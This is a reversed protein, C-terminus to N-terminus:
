VEVLKSNGSPQYDIKLLDIYKQTTAKNQHGVAESVVDIPVGQTLQVAIFTNRLDNVCANEIGAKKMAKDITARINRIILAKGARTCFLPLEPRADDYSNLYDMIVERVRQNLNVKRGPTNSFARIDLQGGHLDLEIDQIQLRSLEGIRVGTQMLVEVMTFLRLTSRSVERLALVESQSLIRPAKTSVKPHAINSAINQNVHGEEQLYKFFTRFSNLKRSLTKPTFSHKVKLEALADKLDAEALHHVQKNLVIFLQELDKRYAILTSSSKGKNTLHTIFEHILPQSMDFNAASTHSRIM